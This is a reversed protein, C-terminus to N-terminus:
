IQQADAINKGYISLDFSLYEEEEQVDQANLDLDAVKTPRPTFDLAGAVSQDSTAGSISSIAAVQNAKTSVQELGM